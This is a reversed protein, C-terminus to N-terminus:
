ATGRNSCCASSACAPSKLKVTCATATVRIAHCLWCAMASGTTCCTWRFMWCARRRALACNPRARQQPRNEAWRQLVEAAAEAQAQERHVVQLHNEALALAAALDQAAAARVVAIGAQRIARGAWVAGFVLRVLKVQQIHLPTYVRYGSPTREVPSLYGWQEYLRVTNPHIGTLRAVKSTSLGRFPM